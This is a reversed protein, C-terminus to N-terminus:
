WTRLFDQDCSVSFIEDWKGMYNPSCRDRRMAVRRTNLTSAPVLTKQGFRQNIQDLTQMLSQRQCSTGPDLWDSQQEHCPRLDPLMVGAKKYRYGPRYMQKLGQVAAQVLQLTDQSPTVLPVMCHGHYQPDQTRFPHTHAFVILAPTVLGRQRLKEAARCTHQLLASKLENIHTVLGSFSRSVVMQQQPVPQTHLNLCPKGQLELITRALVVGIQHHLEHPNAKYLDFVSHIGLNQLRKAMRRGIGWVEQVDMHRFINEQWQPTCSELNFVGQFEPHTKAIHNALKARTKTTAIGICSPIHTWDLIKQRLQTALTNPDAIGSLDVFSEDISYIEQQPVHSRIIAAIRQSLRGYLAYNSSLAILGHSHQLPAVQFWPVGMAIGLAKAEQSRAVCAGDNNSLVVVPRGWLKPDFVRECSVYFNNLDILGILSTNM